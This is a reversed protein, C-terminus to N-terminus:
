ATALRSASIPVARSSPTATGWALSTPSSLARTTNPRERGPISHSEGSPLGVRRIKMTSVGWGLIDWGIFVGMGLFFIFLGMWLSLWDESIGKKGEM